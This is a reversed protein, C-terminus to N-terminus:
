SRAFVFLALRERMMSRDDYEGKVNIDRYGGFMGRGDFADFKIRM